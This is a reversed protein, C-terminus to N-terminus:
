PVDLQRSDTGGRTSDIRVKIRGAGKVQWKVTKTEGNGLEVVARYNKSNPIPESAVIRAVRARALQPAYEEVGESEATKMTILRALEAPALDLGEVLESLWNYSFKM